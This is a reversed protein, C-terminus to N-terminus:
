RVPPTRLRVAPINPISRAESQRLIFFYPRAYNTSRQLLVARNQLLVIRGSEKHNTGGQKDRGHQMACCRSKKGM